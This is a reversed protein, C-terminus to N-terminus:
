CDFKLGLDTSTIIGVLRENEIVLLAKRKLKRMRSEAEKLDDLPDIFPKKTSMAKSILPILIIHRWIM